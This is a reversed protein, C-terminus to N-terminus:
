IKSRSGARSEPMGIDHINQEYEVYSDRSPFNNFALHCSSRVLKKNPFPHMCHLALLQTYIRKIVPLDETKADSPIQLFSTIPGHNLPTFYPTLWSPREKNPIPCESTWDGILFTGYKVSTIQHSAGTNKHGWTQPLVFALQEIDVPCFHFGVLIMTIENNM